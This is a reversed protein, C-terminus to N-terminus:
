AEFFKDWKFGLCICPDIYSNLFKLDSIWYLFIRLIWLIFMKIKQQKETEQINENNTAFFDPNEPNKSHLNKIYFTFIAFNSEM